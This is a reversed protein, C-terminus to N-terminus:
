ALTYFETKEHTHVLVVGALVLNVLIKRARWQSINVLKCFEKITIRNKERLYALLAEEKSSFQLRVGTDSVSRRMVETVLKSAILNQDAVRRYCVWDDQESKAYHPRIPSPAVKAVLIAKHNLVFEQFAVQVQPKCFLINAMDIMHREEEPNCGRVAKNDKIGVLIQGGHANAFAVLTKAIKRSSSITEKFDQKESEGAAIWQEILKPM